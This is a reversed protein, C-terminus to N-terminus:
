KSYAYNCPGLGCFCVLLLLIIWIDVVDGLPEDSSKTWMRLNDCQSEGLSLVCDSYLVVWFCQYFNLAWKIFFPFSFEHALSHTLFLISSLSSIQRNISHIIKPTIENLFLMVHVLIFWKIRKKSLVKVLHYKAPM